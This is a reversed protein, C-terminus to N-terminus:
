WVWDFLCGALYCIGYLAYYPVVVPWLLFAAGRAARGKPLVPCTLTMFGLILYCILYGFSEAPVTFEVHM